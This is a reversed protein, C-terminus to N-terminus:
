WGMYADKNNFKKNFERQWKKQITNKKYPDWCCWSYGGNCRNQAYVLKRGNDAKLIIYELNWEHKSNDYEEIANKVETMVQFDFCEREAVVTGGNQLTKLIIKM